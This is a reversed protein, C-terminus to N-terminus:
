KRWRKRIWLGVLVLLQLAGTLVLPLARGGTRVLSGKEPETTERAPEDEPSPDEEPSPQPPNLEVKDESVRDSGELFTVGDVVSLDRVKPLVCNSIDVSEGAELSALTLNFRTTSDTVDRVTKDGSVRYSGAVFPAKDEQTVLRVVVNELAFRNPNAVRAQVCVQKNIEVENDPTDKTLTIRVPQYDNVTVGITAAQSPVGRAIVQYEITDGGIFGNNPVYRLTDLEARAIDQNAYETEGYLIKGQAPLQTLRVAELPDGDPDDFNEEFEPIAFDYPQNFETTISFGDASPANDGSELITIGVTAAQASLEQPALNTGGFGYFGDDGNWVFSDSGTAGTDPVYIMSKYENEFLPTNVEVAFRGEEGNRDQTTFLAGQSPLESVVVSVLEWGEFLGQTEVDVDSFNTVFPSPDDDFAYETEYPTAFTFGTVIPADNEAEVNMIINAPEEAYVQGDSANWRFTDPGNFNTPPRYIVEFDDRAFEDGAQVDVEEGNEDTTILIGNEPLSEIRITELDEEEPDEYGLRLTPIDLALERDEELLFSVESVTPANNPAEQITINTTAENSTELPRVFRGPVDQTEALDFPSPGFECQPDTQPDCPPGFFLGIDDATWTFSDNGTEGPRPVYELYDLDFDPVTEAFGDNSEGLQYTAGNEPNVVRLDGKSPLSTFTVFELEYGEGQGRTADDVDDFNVRFRNEVGDAFEYITEYPTAFDFGSVVPADNVCDVDINMSAVNSQVGEVSFGSWTFGDEGCYNEAPEYNFTEENTIEIEQGVTIPTRPNGFGGGITLVGEAPLTEFKLRAPRDGAADTYTFRDVTFSRVVDETVRLTSDTATPEIAAEEVTINVTATNSPVQPYPGRPPNEPDFPQQGNSEDVYINDYAEWTFSDSGSYGAAPRYVLEAVNEIYDDQAVTGGQYQLFGNTPLSKIRIAILESGIPATQQEPSDDDTYNQVFLNPNSQTFAYDTEYPTVIGFDSVEPIDNVCNVFMVLRANQDAYGSEGDSANWNFEDTGCFNDNPRYQLGELGFQPDPNIFDAAIEVGDDIEEQTLAQGYLLLTGDTPLSDIMIKSLADNDADQYGNFNSGTDFDTLDFQYPTDESTGMSVFSVTPKSNAAEVTVVVSGTACEGAEQNIDRDCVDYDFTLSGVFGDNLDIRLEGTTERGNANTTTTDTNVVDITTGAGNQVNQITFPSDLLFLGTPPVFNESYNYAGFNDNELVDLIFPEAGQQVTTADAAAVPSYYGAAEAFRELRSSGLIIEMLDPNANSVQRLGFNTVLVATVAVSILYWMDQKLAM